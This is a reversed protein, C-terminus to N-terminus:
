EDGRSRGMALSARGFRLLPRCHEDRLNYRYNGRFEDLTEAVKHKGEAVINRWVSGDALKVREQLPNDAYIV